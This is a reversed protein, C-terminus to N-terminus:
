LDARNGARLVGGNARYPHRGARIAGRGIGAGAGAVPRVGVEAQEEALGGHDPELAFALFEGGAGALDSPVLGEEFAEEGREAILGVDPGHAPEGFKEGLQEMRGGCGIRELQQGPQEADASQERGFQGSGSGRDVIVEAAGPVEPPALLFSEIREGQRILEPAKVSEPGRIMGLAAEGEGGLPQGGAIQGLAEFAPEGRVQGEGSLARVQELEELAFGIGEPGPM